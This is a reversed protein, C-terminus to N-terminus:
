ILPEYTLPSNESSEYYAQRNPVAGVPTSFSNSFLKATPMSVNGYEVEFFAKEISSRILAKKRADLRRMRPALSLCYLSEEDMKKTPISNEKQSNELYTLSKDLKAMTQKIQEDTQKLQVKNSIKAGVWTMGSGYDKKQRKIASTQSVGNDTACVEEAGGHSLESGQGQFLEDDVFDDLNTSSEEQIVNDREISEEVLDPEKDSLRIPESAESVSLGLNSTGARSSMHILLWGLNEFRPNINPIDSLGSGSKLKQKALYRSFATRINKYRREVEETTTELLKAIQQWCNAKKRKDRFDNKRKDYITPFDRIIEMFSSDDEKAKAALIHWNQVSELSEEGNDIAAM